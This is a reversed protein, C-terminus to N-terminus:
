GNATVAKHSRKHGTLAGAHACVKGCVDCTASSSKRPSPPVVIFEPQPEDDDVTLREDEPELWITQNDIVPQPAYTAGMDYNIAVPPRSLVTAFAEQYTARPVTGVMRPVQPVVPQSEFWDSEPPWYRQPVCAKLHRYEDRRFLCVHCRRGDFVYASM